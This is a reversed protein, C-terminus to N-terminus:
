RCLGVACFLSLNGPGAPHTEPPHAGRGKSLNGTCLGVDCIGIDILVYRLAFFPIVRFGGEGGPWRRLGGSSGSMRTTISM